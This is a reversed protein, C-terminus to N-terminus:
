MHRNYALQVVYYVLSEGITFARSVSLKQLLIGFVAQFCFVCFVFSTILRSLHSCSAFLWKPKYRRHMVPGDLPLTCSLAGMVWQNAGVLSLFLRGSLM